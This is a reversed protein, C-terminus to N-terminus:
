SAVPAAGGSSSGLGGGALDLGWPRPDPRGGGNWGGTDRGQTWGGVVLSVWRPPWAGGSPNGMSTPSWACGDGGCLPSSRWWAPDLGCPGQDPRSGGGGDFRDSYFSATSFPRPPLFLLLSRRRNKPAAVPRRRRAGSPLPPPRLLAPHILHNPPAAPPRGLRGWPLFLFVM